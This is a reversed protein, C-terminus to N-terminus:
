FCFRYSCVTAGLTGFFVREAMPGTDKQTQFEYAANALLSSLVGGWFRQRPTMVPGTYIHSFLQFGTACLTGAGFHALDHVLDDHSTFPSAQASSSLLFLICLATRVARFTM